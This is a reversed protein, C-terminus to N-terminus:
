VRYPSVCVEDLAADGTQLQLPVLRPQRQLGEASILELLIRDEKPGAM